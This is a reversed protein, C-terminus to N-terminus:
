FSCQMLARLYYSGGHMRPTANQFYKKLKGITEPIDQLVKIPKLGADKSSYPLVILQSDTEKLKSMVARIAQILEADAASSGNATVKIEFRRLFKRKLNIPYKVDPPPQDMQYPEWVLTITLPKSSKQSSKSAGKMHQPPTIKKAPVVKVVKVEKSNATQKNETPAPKSGM